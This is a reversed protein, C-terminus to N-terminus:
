RAGPFGIALAYIPEWSTDALGFFSRINRRRLLRRHRLLGPGFRRCGSLRQGVLGAELHALRYADPGATATLSKLDAVLFCVASAHGCINQEVCLFAAKSHFDGRPSAPSNIEGPITIGAGADMGAVLSNIWYPRLLAMHPGDPMMPFVSGGRFALRNVALFQDRSISRDAFSRTSRRSILVQRIPPGAALENTYPPAPKLKEAAVPSLETLPPRIDRLAIGPAVCDEHTAIISGYPVCEISLPPRKIRPLKDRTSLDESEVLPKTVPDAWVVMAQVCEVTGFDARSPVGILERMTKDNVQLRPNTQIGLGNGAAVLNQVLHGADLLAM